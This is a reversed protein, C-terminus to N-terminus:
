RPHLRDVEIFPLVILVTVDLQRWRRCAARVRRAISRATARLLLGAIRSSSSVIAFLV